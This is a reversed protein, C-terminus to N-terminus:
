NPGQNSDIVLTTNIQPSTTGNLHTVTDDVTSDVEKNTFKVAGLDVEKNM